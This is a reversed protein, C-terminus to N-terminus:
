AKLRPREAVLHACLDSHELSSPDRTYLDARTREGQLGECEGWCGNRKRLCSETACTECHEEGLGEEHGARGDRRDRSGSFDDLAIGFGQRLTRGSRRGSSRTTEVVTVPRVPLCM